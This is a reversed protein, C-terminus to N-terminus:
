ETQPIGLIYKLIFIIYIFSIFLECRKWIINM